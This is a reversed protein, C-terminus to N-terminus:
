VAPDADAATEPPILSGAPLLQVGSLYLFPNEKEMTLPFSEGEVTVTFEPEGGDTLRVAYDFRRGSLGRMKMEDYRIGGLFGETPLLVAQGGAQLALMGIGSRSLKRLVEGNLSWVCPLASDEAPAPAASSPNEEGDKGDEAAQLLAEAESETLASLVLASVTGGGNETEAPLQVLEPVFYATQENRTLSLPLPDAALNLADMPQGDAELLELNIQDYGTLDLEAERSHSQRSGTGSGHGSPMRTPAATPTPTPTSPDHTAPPAPTPPDPIPTVDTTTGKTKSELWIWYTTKTSAAPAKGTQGPAHAAVLIEKKYSGSIAKKDIVFKIRRIEKLSIKTVKFVQDQCINLELIRTSDKKGESKLWSRILDALKGSQISGDAAQYWGEERRIAKWDPKKGSPAPTPTVVTMRDTKGKGTPAPTSKATKALASPLSLTLLLLALLLCLRKKM